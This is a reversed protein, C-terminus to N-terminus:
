SQEGGIFAGKKIVVPSTKVMDDNKSSRSEFEVSHFDTDTIMCNSGILVDDEIIVSNAATIACHSIGVRDGIKLIANKDCQIHTEYGGACPNVNPASQITVQNGIIFTGSGHFHIRGNIHLGEGYSVRKRKMHFFNIIGTPLGFVKLLLTKM